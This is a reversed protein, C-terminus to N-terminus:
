FTIFEVSVFLEDFEILSSPMSIGSSDVHYCGGKLCYRILGNERKHWYNKESYSQGENWLIGKSDLYKSVIDIQEKSRIIVYMGDVILEERCEM